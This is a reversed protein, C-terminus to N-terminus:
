KKTGELLRCFSNFSGVVLIESKRFSNGDLTISCFSAGEPFCEQVKQFDRDSAFKHSQVSVIYDKNLLLPRSDFTKGFSVFSSGDPREETTRVQKEYVEEVKLV